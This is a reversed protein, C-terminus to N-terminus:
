SRGVGPEKCLVTLGVQPGVSKPACLWAWPVYCGVPAGAGKSPGLERLRTLKGCGTHRGAGGMRGLGWGM